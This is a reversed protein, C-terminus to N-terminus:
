FASWQQISQEEQEERDRANILRSMRYEYYQILGERLAQGSGIRVSESKMRNILFDTMMREVDPQALLNLMAGLVIVGAWNEDVNLSDLLDIESNPRIPKVKYAVDVPGSTDTVILAKGTTVGRSRPFLAFDVTNYNAMTDYVAVVEQVDEPAAAIDAAITVNTELKTLYLRPWLGESIADSVADFVM